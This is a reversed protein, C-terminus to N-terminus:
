PPSDRRGDVAPDAAIDALRDLLSRGGMTAPAPVDLLQLVTRAVDRVEAGELRGLAPIGPGAAVLIGDWAHNADDPGTDNEFTHIRGRGVSGVSRWALNGFLVILDPPTGRVVPYIDAPRHAVTGIPKGHEDPIAELMAQLARCETDVQDPPIMGQPDRGQVNLFVRAYYGGEGWAKTRSWDIELKAFPTPADPVTRLALYGHQLLWENVCIGGRMTRAGHDSVVLVATDADAYELLTGLERDLYAYYERGADELPNGPVYQPHDPNFYKWFGHHLRDTGMDVMMFFDWDERALMHRAMAFHQRSMAYISQLLRRKDDTRFDPVDVIYPGFAAELTAKLEPPRAWESEPGPTLFCTVMSGRLSAPAPYTQPVFLVTSTRGADGLIDWLRPVRVSKSTAFDMEYTGYGKRNRFGYIGLEGPDSGSVMCTWAPVTIPPITSRLPGWIGRKRLRRLNPMAGAFRDFALSPEACDLGIIM